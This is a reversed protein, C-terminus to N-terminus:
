ILTLTLTASYEGAPTTIEIELELLADLSTSGRCIGSGLLASGLGVGPEVAPGPEVSEECASDLLRPEWGLATGSFSHEDSAFDSVHGRVNWEANDLRQDVVTVANLVGTSVLANGQSNLVPTGLGVQDGAVSLTLGGSLAVEVEITQGATVGPGPEGEEVVLVLEGSLADPAVGSSARLVFNYVGAEEPIGALAGDSSLSIGPPLTGGELTVVPPPGGGVDFVFEYPQGVAGTVPAGGITPASLEDVFFFYDTPGTSVAQGGSRTGSMEVTLRYFGPETFVWEYHAHAEIPATITNYDAISYGPVDSASWRMTTVLSSVNYLFFNGPGEADLLKLTFNGTWDSANLGETSLGPWIVNPNDLPGSQPLYWITDGAGGMPPFPASLTVKAQSRVHTLVNAPDYFTPSHSPGHAYILRFQGSEDLTAYFIDAHGTAHITEYPPEAHADRLGSSSLGTIAVVLAIAVVFGQRLHKM